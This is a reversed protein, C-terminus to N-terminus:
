KKLQLHLVRKDTPPAAKQSAHPPPAAMKQPAALDGKVAVAWTGHATVPSTSLPATVPPSGTGTVRAPQSGCGAILGGCALV